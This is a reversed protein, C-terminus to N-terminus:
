IHLKLFPLAAPPLPSLWLAPHKSLPLPIRPGSPWGTPSECPRRTGGGGARVAGPVASVRPTVANAKAQAARGSAEGCHRVGEM